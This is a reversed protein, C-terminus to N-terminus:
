IFTLKHISRATAHTKGGIPVDCASRNRVHDHNANLAYISGVRSLLWAIVRL